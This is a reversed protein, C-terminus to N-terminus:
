VITGDSLVWNTGIWIILKNIGTDYYQQYLKPTQPRGVTTGGSFEAKNEFLENEAELLRSKLLAYLKYELIDAVLLYDAQELATLVELFVTNLQRIQIVSFIDGQQLIDEMLQSVQNILHEQENAFISQQIQLIKESINSLHTKM